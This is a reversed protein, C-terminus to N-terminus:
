LWKSAVYGLALMGGGVYAMEGLKQNKSPRYYDSFQPENMIKLNENPHMRNYLKFSEDTNAFNQSAIEDNHRNQDQWDLLKQRNEQYKSYDRQYKELAKDHRVREQDSDGGSLYKALYSGGVFTTANLVAGGIMMAITAM